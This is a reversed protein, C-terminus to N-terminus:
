FFFFIIDTLSPSFARNSPQSGFFDGSNQELLWMTHFGTISLCDTSSTRFGLTLFRLLYCFAYVSIPSAQVFSVWMRTSLCLAISMKRQREPCLVPSRHHASIPVTAGKRALLLCSPSTGGISSGLTATFLQPSLWDPFTCHARGVRSRLLECMHGGCPGDKM